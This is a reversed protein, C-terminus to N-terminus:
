PKAGKARQRRRYERAKQAQQCSDSCYRVGKSRHQGYKAGGEKVRFRGGCAENQCRRYPAGAAVDNYIMLCLVDHLCPQRVAIASTPGDASSPFVRPHFAELGGNIAIDIYAAAMASDGPATAFSLDDTDVMYDAEWEGALDSWKQSGSLYDWARVANRLKTVGAAVEEAVLYSPLKMWAAM